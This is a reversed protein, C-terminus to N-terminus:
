TVQAFVDFALQMSFLQNHLFQQVHSNLEGFEHMKDFESCGGVTIILQEVAASQNLQSCKPL